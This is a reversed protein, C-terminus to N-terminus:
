SAPFFDLNAVLKRFGKLDICFMDLQEKAENLLHVNKFASLLQTFVDTILSM